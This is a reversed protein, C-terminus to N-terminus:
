RELEMSPPPAEQAYSAVVEAFSPQSSPAEVPAQSLVASQLEVLGSKAFAILEEM